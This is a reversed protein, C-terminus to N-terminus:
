FLAERFCAPQWYERRVLSITTWSHMDTPRHFEECFLVRRSLFKKGRWRCNIQFRQLLHLHQATWLQGRDVSFLILLKFDTLCYNQWPISCFSIYQVRRFQRNVCRNSCSFIRWAKSFYFVVDISFKLRSFPFCILFVQVETVPMTSSTSNVDGCM